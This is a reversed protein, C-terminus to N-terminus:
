LVIKNPMIFKSTRSNLESYIKRESIEYDLVDRLILKLMPFQLELVDEYNNFDQSLMASQVIIDGEDIKETIFHATNGIISVNKQLALDIANLGKFSPLLSPHFNILRNPFARIINSKMIRNGFCFLYQCMTDQLSEMLKLSTYSNIKRKEDENLTEKNIWKYKQNFLEQFIQHVTLNAGDYVVLNPPYKVLNKHDSYFKVIRSANGSCYLGFSKSKNLTANM